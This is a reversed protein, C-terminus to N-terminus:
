RIHFSDTLQFINKPTSDRGPTTGQRQMRLNGPDGVWRDLCIRGGTSCAADHGMSEHCQLLSRPTIKM